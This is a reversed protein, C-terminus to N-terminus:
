EDYIGAGVSIQRIIRMQELYLKQAEQVSVPQFRIKAGPVAQAVYMLDVTIVTGIRTYGGTTQRDAMLIIPQGDAPIQIGGLPAAESLIDAPKRHSIKPGKLRYGMRDSQPTVEYVSSFFTDIGEKTFAEEHPGPVIRITMHKEYKPILSPSLMRGITSTKVADSGMIVDGKQLARGNLGGIGAKLYTSKSGMVKPVNIGGAIAIYARAGSKLGTFSLQDGKKLLVSKWLPADKGNIKAALDGGCIAIVIDRVARLSPGAITAELVAEDKRNGVLLNAIQMSFSDMAGAVVVGYQQYGTRGLDQVTTLLGPKEVLLIEKMM